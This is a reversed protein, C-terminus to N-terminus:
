KLFRICVPRPLSFEKKFELLGNPKIRFVQIADEDRSAVLMYDGNPTIAFNRPHKKTTQYGIKKLKGTKQVSFIAIGDNVLRNSAYLFKGNPAIHIDAAGKGHTFTDTAITQLKKFVHNKREFVVVERSLEGLVYMFKGDASFTFHRPGTGKELNVDENEIHQLEGQRIEFAYIKDAGLDSAYLRKRDPSFVLAHLHSQPLFSVNQSIEGLFGQLDVPFVSINGGTYNATMIKKNDSDYVIYCPAGGFTNQYSIQTIETANVDLSFSHVQSDEQDNESVSFVYKEDPSVTLYSPNKIYASTVKEFTTFQNDTRYLYIGESDSDTYTGVLFLMENKNQATSFVGLFLTFIFLVKKM